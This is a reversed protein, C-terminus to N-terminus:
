VSDPDNLRLEIYAEDHLRRRYQDMAEKAKRERIAKRAESRRTQETADHHRRDEVYAIHWGFPSKFPLSIEGPQLANMQKEFDEVMVGPNVWGLSGGKIASGTDQSHSKALSAFDDGQQIRERLQWLRNEADEDTTVEDTKVLIHRTYSQEVLKRDEGRYDELQVIHFGSKSQIPKSIGGRPLNSAAQMFLGPINSIPMWGLNGGQLAQRGESHAQAMEVFDAGANLQKWIDITRQKAAAIQGPTAGDPTSILIHRMHVAERGTPASDENKLYQDVESKSVQVVNNVEINRLRAVVLQKRIKERFANFDVGEAELAERLQNLSINNNRAIRGIAESVMQENIVIGEKEAKDLMLKEIILENLAKQQIASAPPMKAVKAAILKSRLDKVAQQFESLMVVDENVIAIIRDILEASANSAPLTLAAILILTHKKLM